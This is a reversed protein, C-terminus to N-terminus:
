GKGKLRALVRSAADSETSVEVSIPGGDTGSVRQIPAFDEPHRRELIWAGARWDREGAKRIKELNEHVAEAKAANIRATFGAYKSAEGHKAEDKLWNYVSNESIGALAAAYKLPVGTGIRECLLDVRDPTYKTPAGLKAM